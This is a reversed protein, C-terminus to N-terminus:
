TGWKPTFGCRIAALKDLCGGSSFVECSYSDKVNACDEQAQSVPYADRWQQLDKRFDFAESARSAESVGGEAASPSTVGKLFTSLQKQLKTRMDRTRIKYHRSGARKLWQKRSFTDSRSHGPRAWEVAYARYM